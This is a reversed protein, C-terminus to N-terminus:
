FFSFCKLVRKLYSLVKKKATVGFSLLHSNKFPLNYRLIQLWAQSSQWTSIQPDMRFESHM